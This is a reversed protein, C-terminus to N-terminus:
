LNGVRDVFEGARVQWTQRDVFHRRAVPDVGGGSRLWRRLTEAAEAITAGVALQDPHERAAAIATSLIPKGTALYDYLRLPSRRDNAPSVRLPIVCADFAQLYRPLDDHSKPGLWRVNPRAFLEDIPRRVVEGEDFVPGVFVFTAERAADAIGTLWGVDYSSNIQGVCGVLPRPLGALDDPPDGSPVRLREVFEQSVGNPLVHIPAPGLKRLDDAHTSSIPFVIRCGAMLEREHRTVKAQDWSYMGFYDHPRYVHPVDPFRRLLGATWPIAHVIARPRPGSALLRSVRRATLYTSLRFARTWGPVAVSELGRAARWSKLSLGVTVPGLFDASWESPLATFLSRIWPTVSDLVLLRNASVTM